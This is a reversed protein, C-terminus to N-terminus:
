SPLSSKTTKRAMLVSDVSYLVVAIWILIFASIEGRGVSEGFLTIALILQCTPAIYQLVGITTLKLKRAGAAFLVLPIVTVLGGLALLADAAIGAQLFRANGTWMLWAQLVLMFPLLMGMEITIGTISDAKMQKRLLGYLGFSVPLVFPIWPLSTVHLGDESHMLISICFTAVGAFAIGIAAIQTTRLRERLILRALLVSVLPNIFYGLSAEVLRDSLVSYIFTVWNIAILLTSCVLAAVSKRDSLAARLRGIGPPFCVLLFAIPFGGIARWALLEWASLDSLSKYYIGTIFGWFLYGGLAQLVGLQITRTNPSQNLDPM